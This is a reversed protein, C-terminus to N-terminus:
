WHRASPNEFRGDLVSKTGVNVGGHGPDIVIVRNTQPFSIPPECLLPELNKQLDLGYLFVEGDIFEPAFGLNIEQRKYVDLHTYSVAM